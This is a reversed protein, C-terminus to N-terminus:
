LMDELMDKLLLIDVSMERVTHQQTMISLEAVLVATVPPLHVKEAV